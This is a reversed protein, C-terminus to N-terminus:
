ISIAGKSTAAVGALTVLRQLVAHCGPFVPVKM